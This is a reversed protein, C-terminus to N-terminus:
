LKDLKELEELEHINNKEEDDLKEKEVNKIIKIEEAKYKKFYFEDGDKLKVKVVEKLTEVQQGCSEITRLSLNLSPNTNNLVTM